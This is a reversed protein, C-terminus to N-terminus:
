PRGGKIGAREFEKRVLERARNDALEDIREDIRKLVARLEDANLGGVNQSREAAFREQLDGVREITRALLVMADLRAKSFTDESLSSLTEIERQLLGMIKQAIRLQRSGQQMEIFSLGDRHLGRLFQEETVNLIPAIENASIGYDRCLAFACRRRMASATQTTM